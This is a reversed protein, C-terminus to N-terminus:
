KRRQKENIEKEDVASEKNAVEVEEILSGILAREMVVARKAIGIRNTLGVGTNKVKKLPGVTPATQVINM